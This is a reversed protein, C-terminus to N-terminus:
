PNGTSIEGRVYLLLSRKAGWVVEYHLGSIPLDHSLKTALLAKLTADSHGLLEDLTVMVYASVHDYLSAMQLLEDRGMPDIITRAGDCTEDAHRTVAQTISALVDDSARDPLVDEGLYYTNKPESM